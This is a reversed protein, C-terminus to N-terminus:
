CCTPRSSTATCCAASTPTPWGRPWGRARGVAGGRRLEHGGAHAAHHAYRPRRRVAARAPGRDAGVARDARVGAQRRVPRRKQRSPQQAHQRPGQRFRATHRPPRHRGARRGAHDPRLYPMVVAQLPGARHFSYVPVIHTHQLRALKQSEAFCGTSVKLAVLRDALDGQQALYVRGFAGRGLEGILHFGLFEQGAEPFAVLGETLRRWNPTPIIRNISSDSPAPTARRRAWSDPGPQPVLRPLRARGRGACQKCEPGSEARDANAQPM